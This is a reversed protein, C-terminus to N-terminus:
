NACRMARLGGGAFSTKQSVSVLTRHGRLLASRALMTKIYSVLPLLPDGTVCEPYKGTIPDREAATVAVYLATFDILLDVEGDALMQRAVQSKGSGAPGRLLRLAGAM